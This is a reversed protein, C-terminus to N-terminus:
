SIRTIMRSLLKVQTSYVYLKYQRNRNANKINVFTVYTSEIDYNYVYIERVDCIRSMLPGDGHNLDLLKNVGHEEATTRRKYLVFETFNTRINSINATRQLAMADTFNGFTDYISVNSRTDFYLYKALISRSQPRSGYAFLPLESATVTVPMDDSWSPKGDIVYGSM